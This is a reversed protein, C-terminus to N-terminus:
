AHAEKTNPILTTAAAAYRDLGLPRADIAPVRGTVLDALM